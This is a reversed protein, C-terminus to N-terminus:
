SKDLVRENQDFPQAKILRQPFGGFFRSFVRYIDKSILSFFFSFVFLFFMLLYGVTFTWSDLLVLDLLSQFYYFIFPFFLLFLSPFYCSRVLLNPSPIVMHFSLSPTWTVKRNINKEINSSINKLKKLMTKHKLM